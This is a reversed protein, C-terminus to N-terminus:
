QRTGARSFQLLSLISLVFSSPFFLTYVPVVVSLFLSSSVLGCEAAVQPLSSSLDLMFIELRMGAMTLGHRGPLGKRFLVLSDETGMLLTPGNPSSADSGLVRLCFPVLCSDRAKDLRRERMAGM